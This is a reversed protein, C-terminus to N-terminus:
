ERRGYMKMKVRKGIKTVPAARNRLKGLVCIFALNQSRLKLKTVFFLGSNALYAFPQDFVPESEKNAHVFFRLVFVQNRGNNQVSACRQALDFWTYQIDVKEEIFM